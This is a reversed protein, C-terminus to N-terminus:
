TSAPTALEDNETAQWFERAWRIKVQEANNAWRRLDTLLGVYNLPISDRQLRKVLRHLQPGLEDLSDCALLRRFHREMSEFAPSSTKGGALQLAARGVGPGPQKHASFHDSGHTAYLAAVLTFRPDDIVRLSGLVPYTHHRTSPSWWRRLAARHGRDRCLKSLRDVFAENHAQPDNETQTM